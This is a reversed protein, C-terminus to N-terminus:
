VIAADALGGVIMAVIGAAVAGRYPWVHRMIAAENPVVSIKAEGPSPAAGPVPPLVVGDAGRGEQVLRLLLDYHEKEVRMLQMILQRQERVEAQLRALDPAPQEGAAAPAAHGSAGAAAVLISAWAGVVVIRTHLM